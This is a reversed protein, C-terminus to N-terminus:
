ALLSRARACTAAPWPPRTCPQSAGLRCRSGLGRVPSAPLCANPRAQPQTLELYASVQITRVRDVSTLGPGVPHGLSHRLIRTTQERTPPPPHAAIASDRLEGMRREHRLLREPELASVGDWAPEAAPASWGGEEEDAGDIHVGSAALVSHSGHACSAGRRRGASTVGDAAAIAGLDDGAAPAELGGEGDSEGEELEEDSYEEEDGDWHM